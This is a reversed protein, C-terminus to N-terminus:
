NPPNAKGPIGMAMENLMNAFMGFDPEKMDGGEEPMAGMLSSMMKEFNAM